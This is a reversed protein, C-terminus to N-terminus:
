ELLLIVNSSILATQAVHNINKQTKFRLFNYVLLVVRRFSLIFYSSFLSYFTTVNGRPLGFFFKKLGQIDLSCSLPTSFWLCQLVFWLWSLSVVWAYVCGKGYNQFPAILWVQGVVTCNARWLSLSGCLRPKAKGLAWRLGELSPWAAKRFVKKVKPYEKIPSFTPSKSCSFLSRESVGALFLIFPFALLSQLYFGGVQCGSNAGSPGFPLLLSDVGVLQWRDWAHLGYHTHMCMLM